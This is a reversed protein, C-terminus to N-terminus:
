KHIIKKIFLSVVERTSEFANLKFIISGGFYVVLFVFLEICGNLYLNNGLINSIIITILSASLTLLGIPLLDLFQNKLSYGVYKQVLAANIIYILWSTCVMGLLLGKVGGIVMGLVLLILGVGRKVFTWKFMARSKGLAAVAYYTIGQMCIAIGAFCLIQFYPVSGLWRNSYLIQFIPEALIALILMMPFSIFALVISFKNLMRKMYDMDGQAEVLVPYAVQEVIQSVFTSSLEETSKAKSYYGMTVPTYFRGILIGQINNCFTNLLNSLLVFGGFGFLESFSDKSFILRPKWPCVIWYTVATFLSLTLQQCVLAWVGAGHIALVITLGLSVISVSVDVIAIKKFDLQKKLVNLQVIKSANIILVLSQVRLVGCLIETHFFVSIGPASVFLILYILISLFINWIFITSYDEDSPRKKQILASGFGGDIFTSSVAMFIALMGICGYDEPMLLRALIISSIFNLLITGFKQIASWVVGSVVKEKLNTPM